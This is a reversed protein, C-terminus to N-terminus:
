HSLAEYQEWTETRDHVPLAGYMDGAIRSFRSDSSAAYAGGFMYDTRNEPRNEYPRLYGSRRGAITREVYVVLNEPINNEDIEIYGDDCEVLLEDFRETIGGNSCGGFKSNKFVDIRIAKM